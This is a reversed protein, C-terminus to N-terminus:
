RISSVSGEVACPSQFSDLTNQLVLVFCIMSPVATFKM